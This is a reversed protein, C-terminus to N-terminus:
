LCYRCNGLPSIMVDIPEESARAGSPSSKLIQALDANLRDKVKYRTAVLSRVTFVEIMCNYLYHVIDARMIYGAKEPNNKLLSVGKPDATPWNEYELIKPDCQSVKEIFYVLSSISREAEATAKLGTANRIIMITNLTSRDDLASCTPM